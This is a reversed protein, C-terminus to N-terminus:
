THKIKFSNNTTIELINNALMLKLTELIDKESYELQEVLTRVNMPENELLLIIHQSINKIDNKDTKTKKSICVSCIGCAESKTEGFYELLQVSKCHKDDSIYHIVGNIQDEKLRHQQEIISAIRNITKDDERPQLFTLETDTNSHTFDIIGDQEIKYLYCSSSKSRM